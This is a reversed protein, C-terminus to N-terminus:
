GKSKKTQQDKLNNENEIPTPITEPGQYYTLSSITILSLDSFQCFEEFAPFRGAIPKKGNIVIGGLLEQCIIKGPRIKPDEEFKTKIEPTLQITLYKKLAKSVDCNKENLPHCEENISIHEIPDRIITKLEGGFKWSSTSPKLKEALDESKNSAIIPLSFLLSIILTKM